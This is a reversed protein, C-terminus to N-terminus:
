EENSQLAISEEVVSGSCENAMVRNACLSELMRQMAVGLLHHSPGGRKKENHRQKVFSHKM